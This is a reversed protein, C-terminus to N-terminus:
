LPKILVRWSTSPAESAQLVVTMTDVRTISDVQVDQFTVNDYIQVLVDRTGLNHVVTKSTGNLLVWNTAVGASAGSAGLLTGIDSLSVQSLAGSNSTDSILVTDNLAPTVVPKATILGANAIITASNGADNYNLSLDPSAVVAPFVADQAREATFYLNSGESLQTTTFPSLSVAASLTNLTDNYAWSVSASAQVMAGVVDQVSEDFDYIDLHNHSHNPLDTSQLVRFSPASAPGLVASGMLVAKPAVPAWNLALNGMTTIPSNSVTFEVPATLGVSTVTGGFGPNAWVLQGAGSTSLFYGSTGLDPPLSFTLDAVQGASVKAAELVTKQGARSFEFGASSKVLQGGFSPSVKLGSIAASPSIDANTVSSALNLKSYSIGATPSVDFNTISNALNLSTYSINSFYNVSGDLVKNSVTASNTNSLIVGSTPFTVLSGDVGTGGRNPPLFASSTLNGLSDNMVVHLASGPALKSRSIGGAINTDLIANPQINSSGVSNPALIASAAGAGSAIVAGTLSTIYPGVPQKGDLQGQISSTVGTLYSFQAQSVVGGGIVSLPLNTSPSFAAQTLNTITNTSADISKAVLTQAGTTLVAIGAYPLVVTGPITPGQIDVAGSTKLDGGLTWVRDAGQVDITISRQATDPGPSSSASNYRLQLKGTSSLDSLTFSGTVEFNTTFIKLNNIPSTASGFFLNGQGATGGVSPDGPLLHIDQKQRIFLSNTNDSAFTEGLKDILELNVRAEATLGSSLYLKLNRTRPTSVAM